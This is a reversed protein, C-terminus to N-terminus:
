FYSVFHLSTERKLEDVTSADSSFSTKAEKCVVKVM